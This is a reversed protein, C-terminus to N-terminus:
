QKVQEPFCLARLAKKNVKGLANRPLAPLICMRSPLQYAPLHPAARARLDALTLEKVDGDLALVAAIVEGYTDDPLGLVACEQIGPLALLKGEIDLASIKYGGHKIIDVSSRGLMRYYPPDGEVVAQDGTQFYGEDDYADRTAEPNRWYEKFLQAGRVRIEGEKGVKNDQDVLRVGLAPFPLGVTGVRREGCLPNGLIMGTETMGYRELPTAGSIEAWAALTPKPCAASGCTWLRLRRAAERMGGQSTAPAGEYANILFAYMTPVGMFISVPDASSQVREWVRSPSFRPMFEVAAGAQLGCLMAVVIGHVHHLPLTHLIHDEAQWGWADILASTQAHLGRHTHVVGKPRGTTGSTYIMLASDEPAVNDLLHKLGQSGQQPRSGHTLPRGVPVVTTGLAKGLDAMREFHSPSALIASAGSDNLVYKLERRLPCPSPPPLLHSSGM